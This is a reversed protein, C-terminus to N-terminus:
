EEDETVMIRGREVMFPHGYGCYVPCAFGFSGSTTVVFGLENPVTSHHWLYV